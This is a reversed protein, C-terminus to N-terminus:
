KRAAAAKTTVRIVGNVAAPDSSASTASEGKLVEVSAIDNPDLHSMDGNAVKVGDVLLVGTFAHQMESAHQSHMGRMTASDATTALHRAHITLDTGKPSGAGTTISIKAPVQATAADVSISAVRSAPIAHAEAASAPKGDVVFVATDIAISVNKMAREAGAVDMSQVEASTPIKAECAALIAVGAIACLSGARLHTFRSTRPTMALLRRRLHSSEDALATAGATFSRCQGALDILLSGYVRPAVGRRLVRADCDLELALRLRSLMWWAAPHWPVLAAAISAAALLLHDRAALHEREHALVLRQEADSRALLWRPVVIFPQVVGLVAPGVSPAVRVAHGFLEARPWARRLRAIRLHVLAMVLLALASAVLWLSAAGRGLWPPLARAARAMGATLARRGADLVLSIRERLDGSTPRVASSTTRGSPQLALLDPTAGRVSLSRGGLLLMAGLGAAWVWRTPLRHSRALADLAHCALAVFGGTVLAYIVWGASLV